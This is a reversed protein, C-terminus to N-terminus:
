NSESNAKRRSSCSRMWFPGFPKPPKQARKPVRSARALDTVKQRYLSSLPATLVMGQASTRRRSAARQHGLERDFGMRKSAVFRLSGLSPVAFSILDRGGTKLPREIPGSRIESRGL